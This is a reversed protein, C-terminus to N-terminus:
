FILSLTLKNICIYVFVCIFVCMGSPEYKEAFISTSSQTHPLSSTHQSPQLGTFSPASYVSPHSVAPTSGFGPGGATMTPTEASYKDNM